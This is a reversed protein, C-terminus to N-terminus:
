KVHEEYEVAGTAVEKANKQVDEDEHYIFQLTRKTSIADADSAVILPPNSRYHADIDELKRNATEPYLLLQHFEIM